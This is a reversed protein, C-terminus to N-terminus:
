SGFDELVDESPGSQLVGALGGIRQFTIQTERNPEQREYFEGIWNILMLALKKNEEDWEIYEPTEEEASEDLWRKEPENLAVIQVWPNTKGHDLHGECSGCTPINLLNLVAVTEIIKKDVGENSRDLLRLVEEMKEQLLTEKTKESPVANFNM